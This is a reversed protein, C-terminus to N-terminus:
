AKPHKEHMRMQEDAVRVIQAQFRLVLVLDDGKLSKLYHEQFGKMGPVTADMMRAHHWQALFHLEDDTPKM